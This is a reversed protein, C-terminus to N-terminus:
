EIPDPQVPICIETRLDAEITERPDTLYRELIPGKARRFGSHPLWETIIKEQTESIQDYASQHVATAYWGGPAETEILDEPIPSGSPVAWCAQYADEYRLGFAPETKSTGDFHQLLRGWTMGINEPTMEGEVQLAAGPVSELQSVKM